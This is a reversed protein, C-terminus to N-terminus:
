CCCCCCRFIITYHLAFCCCCCCFCSRRRIVTMLVCARARVRLPHDRSQQQQKNRRRRVYFDHRSLIVPLVFGAVPNSITTIILKNCCQVASPSSYSFSPSPLRALVLLHIISTLLPPPISIILLAVTHNLVVKVWRENVSFVACTSSSSDRESM